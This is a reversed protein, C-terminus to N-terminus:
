RPPVRPPSVGPNRRRLLPLARAWQPVVLAGLVVVAGVRGVWGHDIVVGILMIFGLLGSWGLATIIQRRSSRPGPYLYGVLTSGTPSLDEM